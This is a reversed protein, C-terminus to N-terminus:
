GVRRERAKDRLEALEAPLNTCIADPGADLLGVLEEPRDEDWTVVGMGAAHVGEVASRPLLTHPSSGVRKWCPHLYAVGLDVGLAILADIDAPHYLISTALEPGAVRAARVLETDFSGIVVSEKMERTRVLTVVPAATGPGKLEIYVGIRGKAWGLVEDLTPIAATDPANRLDKLSLEQISRKLEGVGEDHHVMSIGDSSLWVDLEVLDAGEDAAAQFAAM